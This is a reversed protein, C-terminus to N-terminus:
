KVEYKNGGLFDKFEVFTFNIFYFVRFQCIEEILEPRINM